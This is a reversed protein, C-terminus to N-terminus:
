KEIKQAPGLAAWHAPSSWALGARDSAL